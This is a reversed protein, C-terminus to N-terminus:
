NLKPEFNSVRVWDGWMRNEMFLSSIWKIFFFISFSNENKKISNVNATYHMIKPRYADIHIANRMDTLAGVYMCVLSNKEGSSLNEKLAGNGMSLFELKLSIGKNRFFIYVYRDILKWPIFWNRLDSTSCILNSDSPITKDNNDFMLILISARPTTHTKLRKQTCKM